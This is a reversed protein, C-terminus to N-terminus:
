SASKKFENFKKRLSKANEEMDKLTEEFFTPNNTMMKELESSYQSMEFLTNGAFAYFTKDNAHRAKQCRVLNSHWGLGFTTTKFSSCAEQVKEAFEKPHETIQDMGDNYITITTLYGM